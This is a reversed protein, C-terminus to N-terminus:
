GLEESAAKLQESLAAAHKAFDKLLVRVLGLYVLVGAQHALRLLSGRFLLRDFGSLTGIVAGAHKSLFERM